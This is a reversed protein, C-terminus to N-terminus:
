SEEALRKHYWQEQERFWKTWPLNEKDLSEMYTPFEKHSILTMEEMYLEGYILEDYPKEYVRSESFREVFTEADQKNDFMAVVEQNLVADGFGGDVTYEHMVQYIKM